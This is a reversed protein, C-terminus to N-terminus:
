VTSIIRMYQSLICQMVGYLKTNTKHIYIQNWAVIINNYDKFLTTYITKLIFVFIELQVIDVNKRKRSHVYMEATQVHPMSAPFAKGPIEYDIDFQVNRVFSVYKIPCLIINARKKEESNKM